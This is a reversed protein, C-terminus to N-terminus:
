QGMGPRTAITAQETAASPQAQSVCGLATNEFLRYLAALRQRREAPDDITKITSIKFVM